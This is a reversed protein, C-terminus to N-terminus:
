EELRMPMLVFLDDERSITGGAEDRDAVIGPNFPDTIDLSITEEECHRLIDLFYGPHFAVELKDGRYNVPMNVRGEGIDMANASLNLENDEFTFRVSQSAEATFLSVQKLLSILEDRHLPLTTAQSKPIVRQYDPFEGDLLKTVFLLATTDIGIRDPLLYLTANGPEDLVKILEEVAKIPIIYSGEIPDTSAVSTHAKSLRKGDTGVFSAVDRSIQMLVGTLVYRMDERSVAFVTKQLCKKLETQDITCRLAQGLSPLPTFEDAPMGHLRFRSRGAIVETVHSENTEIDIQPTGLERVLQTFRRAPLTTAGPETVKASCVGKLGVTLDSGTLTIENGKAEILVNSLIPSASKQGIVTQLKTLLAMLDQRAVSFKM